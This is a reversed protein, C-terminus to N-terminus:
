SGGILAQKKEKQLRTSIVEGSPAAGSKGPRLLAIKHFGCLPRRKLEEEEGREKISEQSKQNLIEYTFSM